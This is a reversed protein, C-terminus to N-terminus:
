PPLLHCNETDSGVPEWKKKHLAPGDIHICVPVAKRAMFGLEDAAEGGWRRRLAGQSRDQEVVAAGAVGRAARGPVHLVDHLAPPGRMPSGRLPAVHLHPTGGKARDM